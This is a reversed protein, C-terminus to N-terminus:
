STCSGLQTHMALNVSHKRSGACGLVAWGLGAWGLGHIDAWGLAASGCLHCREKSLPPQSDNHMCSTAEELLMDNHMSSLRM